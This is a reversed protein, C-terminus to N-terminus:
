NKDAEHGADVGERHDIMANGTTAADKIGQEKATQHSILDIGLEESCVALIDMEGAESEDWYKQTERLVRLIREYGFGYERHLAISFAAYVKPIIEHIMRRYRREQDIFQKNKMDKESCIIFFYTVLGGIIASMIMLFLGAQTPDYGWSLTYDQTM